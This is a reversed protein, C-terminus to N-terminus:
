PLDLMKHEDLAVETREYVEGIARVVRDLVVAAEEQTEVCVLQYFYPREPMALFALEAARRVWWTHHKALTRQYTEKCLDSPRGLHGGEPADKGLEQLFSQLWLLARHLRLLTRCGSITYKQFDVLGNKMEWKIMSRISIYGSTSDSLKHNMKSSNSSRKHPIVIGTDRGMTVRKKNKMRKEAEKEHKQALDRIVTTKSEIEQSIIGVMPGLAEMFKILEDWSALYPKLLVDNTSVPASKLYALLNAVKFRQGPCVKLPAEGEESSNVRNLSVAKNKPIYMKLCTGLHHDLSGYLWMSGLLLLILVIASCAKCKVGM